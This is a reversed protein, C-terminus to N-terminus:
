YHETHMMDRAQQALQTTAQLVGDRISESDGGVSGVNIINHQELRVDGRSTSAAVAQM